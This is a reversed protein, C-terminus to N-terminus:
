EDPPYVTRMLTKGDKSKAVQTLLKVTLIEQKGSRLTVEFLGVNLLVNKKISSVDVKAVSFEFKNEGKAYTKSDTTGLEIVHRKSAYDVVYKLDWSADSIPTPCVFDIALGFKSDIPVAESPSVAIKKIQIEQKKVEKSDNNSTM